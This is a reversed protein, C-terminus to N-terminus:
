FLIIKLLVPVSFVLVKCRLSAIYAGVIYWFQYRVWSFGAKKKVWGSAIVTILRLSRWRLCRRDIEMRDLLFSCLTDSYQKIIKCGKIRCGM